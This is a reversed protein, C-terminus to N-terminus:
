ICSFLFYWTIICISLKQTQELSFPYRRMVFPMIVKSHLRWIFTVLAMFFSFIVRNYHYVGLKRNQETFYSITEFCIDHHSSLPSELHHDCSLWLANVAMPMWVCQCKNPLAVQYSMVYCCDRHRRLLPLLDYDSSFLLSCIFIM